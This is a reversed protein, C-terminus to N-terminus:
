HVFRCNPLSTRRVADAFLIQSLPAFGATFVAEDVAKHGPAKPSDRGRNPLAILYIRRAAAVANHGADCKSRRFPPPTV